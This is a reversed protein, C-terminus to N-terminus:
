KRMMLLMPLVIKRISKIIITTMTFEISIQSFFIHNILSMFTGIIITFYNALEKFLQEFIKSKLFAM